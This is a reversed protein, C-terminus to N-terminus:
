PCCFVAAPDVIGSTILANRVPATGPAVDASSAFFSISNAPLFPAFTASTGSFVLPILIGDIWLSPVGLADVQFAVVHSGNNPTWTGLYNASNTNDGVQFSVNGDGYLVLVVSDDLPQNNLILNYTTMGTPATPYETFEFKGTLSRVSALPLPLPKTDGPFDAAGSSDFSMSGPTFTVSGGLPGFAESFTWGCLPGPSAGSITGACGAFCDSFITAAVCNPAPAPSPAPGPVVGLASGQGSGQPWLGSGPGGGPTMPFSPRCPAVPVPRVYGPPCPRLPPRPPLAM